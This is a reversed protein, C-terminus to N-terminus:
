MTAIVYGSFHDIRFVGLTRLLWLPLSELATVTPELPGMFYAATLREGSLLDALTMDQALTVPRRFELGHPEFHYGVLNGAPATVTIETPERVAGWPVFVTLGSRPLRIVGGTGGITRTVVEDEELPVSRELVQVEQGARALVDDLLDGDLLGFDPEVADAEYQPTTPADACGAALLLAGLALVGRLTRFRRM